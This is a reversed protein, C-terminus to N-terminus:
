GLRLGAFHNELDARKHREKITRILDAMHGIQRNATNASHGAKVWGGHSKITQAVISLGLGSGPANRASPSRWFRWRLGGTSQRPTRASDAM